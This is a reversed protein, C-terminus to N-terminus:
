VPVKAVADDKNKSCESGILRKVDVVVQFM